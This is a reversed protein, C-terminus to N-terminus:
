HQGEYLFVFDESSSGLLIKRDAGEISVPDGGKAQFSQFLEKALDGSVMFAAKDQVPDLTALESIFIVAVCSTKSDSITQSCQLHFTDYAGSVIKTLTTGDNSAPVSMADFIEQAETGPEEIFVTAKDKTPSFYSYSNAFATASFLTMATAASLFTFVLKNM